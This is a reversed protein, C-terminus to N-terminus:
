KKSRTIKLDLVKLKLSVEDKLKASRKKWWGGGLELYMPKTEFIYFYPKVHLNEKLSNLCVRLLSMDTHNVEDDTFTIEITIIENIEIKAEFTIKYCNREMSGIKLSLTEINYDLLYENNLKIENGNAKENLKTFNFYAIPKKQPNPHKLM